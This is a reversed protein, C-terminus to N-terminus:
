YVFCIFVVYFTFVLRCLFCGLWCVFCDRVLICFLSECVYLFVSGVYLVFKVLMCFLSDCIYLVSKVYFFFLESIYM